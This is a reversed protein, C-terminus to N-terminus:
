SLSNTSTPTKQQQSPNKQKTKQTKKTTTAIFDTIQVALPLASLM